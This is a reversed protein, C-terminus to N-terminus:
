MAPSHTPPPVQKAFPCLPYLPFVIVSHCDLRPSQSSSNYRESFVQLVVSVPLLYFCTFLKKLPYIGCLSRVEFHSLLACPPDSSPDSSSARGARGPLCLARVWSVFTASPFYELSVLTSIGFTPFILTTELHCAFEKLWYIFANM